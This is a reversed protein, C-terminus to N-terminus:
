RGGDNRLDPFCPHDNSRQDISRDTQSKSSVDGDGSAPVTPSHCRRRPVDDRVIKQQLFVLFSEAILDMSTSICTTTGLLQVVLDALSLHRVEASSRLLRHYTDLIWRRELIHWSGAGEKERKKEERSSRSTFTPRGSHQATPVRERTSFRRRYYSWCTCDTQGTLLLLLLEVRVFPRSVSIKSSTLM